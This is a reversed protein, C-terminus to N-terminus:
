VPLRTTQRLPRLKGDSTGYSRIDAAAGVTARGVSRTRPNSPYALREEACSSSGHTMTCLNEDPNIDGFAAVGNRTFTLALQCPIVATFPVQQNDSVVQKEYLQSQFRIKQVGPRQVAITPPFRVKTRGHVM